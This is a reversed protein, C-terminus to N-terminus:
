LYGLIGKVKVECEQYEKEAESLLTIAGGTHINAKKAKDDYMLTRIVVSFDFDGDRDVYGINGAYLGRLTSELADINKMVEKKPAGTMSGPPLTYKLADYKDTTNKMRAEITSIMQHVWKFSYIECLETVEISGVEAYPTMDNRMLDVIMYNESRDKTSNRLEEKLKEDAEADSQNRKSTGKIPQAILTDGRLAMFREPSFSLAYQNGRKVFASMPSQAVKNIHLFAAIPNVEIEKCRYEICYNLEYFEGELIKDKIKKVNEIYDDYHTMCEFDPQIANYAKISVQNVIDAIEQAEIINRNIYIRDDKGVVVYRAKFWLEKEFEISPNTNNKSFYSMYSFVFDERSWENWDAIHDYEEISDIGILFDYKSYKDQHGNSDLFVVTDFYNAWHLLMSKM